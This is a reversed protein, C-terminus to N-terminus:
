KKKKGFMRNLLKTRLDQLHDAAAQIPAQNEFDVTRKIDGLKDAMKRIEIETKKLRNESRDAADAAKECYRAVDEVAARAEDPKNARYLEDADKLRRKAIKVYLDPQDKLPAAEARAIMEPLTEQKRAFTAAALLLLAFIVLPFRM